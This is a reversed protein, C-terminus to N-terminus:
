NKIIKKSIVRDGMSVNVLYIGNSLKDLSLVHNFTGKQNEFKDNIIIQGLSNFLQIEVNSNSLLKLSINVNGNTPNPYISFGTENINEDISTIYPVEFRGIFADIWGSGPNSFPVCYPNVTSPCTTPFTSTSVNTAGTIYLMDNSNDYVIGHGWDSGSTGSGSGGFYSSWFLNNNEYFGAIFADKTTPSGQINTQVYYGPLGVTFLDDQGAADVISNGFIFVRDDNAITIDITGDETLGTTLNYESGSSGFFTSWTLQYNTNFRSIFAEQNVDVNDNDRYWAGSGPNCLPFGGNTPADCFVNPIDTNSATEARGVIYLDGASNLALHHGATEDDGAGFFTSWVLRNSADFKSIYATTQASGPYTGQFYAGSGPDCLPFGNNSPVDCPNDGTTVPETLGTIYFSNDTPDVVVDWAVDWAAGGFFTSWVMKRTADFKAITPDFSGGNHNFQFYSPANPCLPYGMNSSPADCAPIGPAITNNPPLFQNVRTAGVVILNGLGDETVKHFADATYGGFYTAWRLAGMGNPDLSVLFADRDGSYFNQMYPNTSTNDATPFNSSWTLGSVYVFGDQSPLVSLGREEDTGGYYTSWHLEASTNFKSVFADYYGAFSAQIPSGATAPYNTSGTLGTVYVNDVGDVQVDMGIDDADGGLYTNWDLNDIAQFQLQSHGRDVRIYLPANPPFNNTKIRVEDTTNPVLEFRAQWTMPTPVGVQNITFAHPPELDLTGIPSVVELGGSPTVNVATAGSYKMIIDDPNGGPKIIFYYKLGENNSYYQMDIMPYVDNCVARSFSKNNTVGLPVHALYYNDIGTTKETKFVKVGQNAGELMMDIRYLNFLSDPLLTDKKSFVYSVKDEALFVNPNAGKTYLKIEPRQSGNMDVLQGRNTTYSHNRSPSEMGIYVPLSVTIDEVCINFATPDTSNNAKCTAKDCDTHTAKRSAKIYYAQGVTLGSANLDIGLEKADAVFPLEDDALLTLSSCTGSYLALNHIHTANLGFKTTVLSINVTPSTATFKLWYENGTTVHSTYNCSTSTTISASTGCNQQAKISAVM